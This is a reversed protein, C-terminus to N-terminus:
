DDLVRRRDLGRSVFHEWGGGIIKKEEGKWCVKIETKETVRGIPILQSGLKLIRHSLEEIASEPLTIILEYEEGGFMVVDFVDLGFEKAYEAALPDIPLNEIMFGVNSAQSLQQLSAALGDSSDISSTVVGSKSFEIGEYLKARPRLVSERLKEWRKDAVQNFLAHLGTYTAGFLGTVAVIDGPKAGTRPIPNDSFGIGFVSIVLENAENTDGGVIKVGYEHCADELGAWLEEFERIYMERRLGLETVIYRPTAGKSALDSIVAVIAKRGALRFTMGPPIDTHEVLTDGSCVIRKDAIFDFADDGPNLKSNEIKSIRGIIFKLLETEGIESIKTSM